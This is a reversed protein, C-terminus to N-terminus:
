PLEAIWDVDDIVPEGKLARDAMVQLRVDEKVRAQLRVPLSVIVDLLAQRVPGAGRGIKRWLRALRACAAYLDEDQLHRIPEM